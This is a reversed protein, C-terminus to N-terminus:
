DFEDYWHGYGTVGAGGEPNSFKLRFKRVDTGDFLGEWGQTTTGNKVFPYTGMSQWSCFGWFGSDDCWELQVYFVGDQTDASESTLSLYINEGNFQNTSSTVNNSFDYEITYSSAFAYLPIAISLILVLIFIIATKKMKM